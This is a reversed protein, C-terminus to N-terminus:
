DETLELKRFAAVALTPAHQEYLEMRRATSPFRGRVYVRQTDIADSDLSKSPELFSYRHSIQAKVVLRDFVARERAGLLSRAFTVFAAHGDHPPVATAIRNM